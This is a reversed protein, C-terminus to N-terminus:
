QRDRGRGGQRGGGPRDLVAVMLEYAQGAKAQQNPKLSEYIKAFTKTEIDTFQAELSTYDDMLKKLDDGSKGEILAGAIQVREQDIQGRLQTSQEMAATLMKAVDDKQETTLKLKEAFLQLKSPRAAPMGAGGSMGGGGMGGGGKKGQASALSAVLVAALLLRAFM